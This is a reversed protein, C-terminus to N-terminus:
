VSFDTVVGTGYTPFEQNGRTCVRVEKIEKILFDRKLDKYSKSPPM